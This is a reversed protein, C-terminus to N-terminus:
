HGTDATDIDETEDAVTSSDVSPAYATTATSSTGIPAALRVEDIVVHEIGEPVDFTPKSYEPLLSAEAMFRVWLVRPLDGGTAGKGNAMVIPTNDDYGVWVSGGLSPTFGVFRTTRSENTTGTKGAIAVPVKKAVPEAVKMLADTVLYAVEPTLVQAPPALNNKFVVSGDSALIEKVWHFQALKGQNGFALYISLVNTDSAEIAGIMASPQFREIIGEYRFKKAVEIVPELHITGPGATEWEEDSIEDEPHRSFGLKAVTYMTCVNSSKKLWKWLPIYGGETKGEYNRPTYDRPPKSEAIRYTRSEDLCAGPFGFIEPHEMAAAYVLPKFTSGIQRRSQIARNWKGAARASRGGVMAIMEGSPSMVAFGTELMKGPTSRVKTDLEQLGERVVKEAIAQVKLRFTTYVKLGHATAQESGLVEIIQNRVHTCLWGTADGDAEGPATAIVLPFQKLLAVSSTAVEGMEAMGSLVYNRRELAWNPRTANNFLNSPAKYLSGLFAAEVTTIQDLPKAFWVRAAERVGQVNSRGAGAGYNALNHYMELIDEKSFVKEIERAMKLEFGKRMWKDGKPVLNQYPANPAFFLMKVVQMTITSAGRLKKGTGLTKVNDYIAAGLGRYDVGNHEYFRRDEAALTAQVMVKPIEKFLVPVLTPAYHPKGDVMKEIYPLRCIIEGDADYVTANRRLESRYDKVVSIDPMRQSFYHDFYLYAAGAGVLAIIGLLFLIVLIKWLKKM